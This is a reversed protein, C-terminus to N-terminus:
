LTIYTTDQPFEINKWIGKLDFVVGGKKLLALQTKKDMDAYMKHSVLLAVCNYTEGELNEKLELGYAKRVEEANAYPDHIDVEFGSALLLNHVEFIKTNRIDNVEEKFTFGLILVRIGRGDAAVGGLSETIINSVYSSMRNNIARGAGVMEANLGCKQACEILYYPDVGICHGSVLGPTFPLFNWKTRAADLVDYISIGMENMLVTVENIFAINIDRQANEVVKSAEATKINKTKYINGGNLSGYISALRDAVEETQASVIKTVSKVTHERDGPNIREPSYGLFFDIGSELSSIGQLIAGCVNETVGPYVTSEYVVVDVKKLYRAIMRTASKLMSLDPVNDKDVPTPVAVIYINCSAIDEEASTLSEACELLKGVDVDNNYNVGRKLREILAADIDYGTVDYYCSLEVALPLGVYGLGVVCIHDNKEM